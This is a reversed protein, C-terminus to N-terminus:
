KESPEEAKKSTTKKVSEKKTNEKAAGEKNGCSAMCLAMLCTVTYILYKKMM